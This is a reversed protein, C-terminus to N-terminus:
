KLIVILLLQIALDMVSLICLGWYGHVEAVMPAPHLNLVM